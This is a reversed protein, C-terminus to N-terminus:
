TEDLSLVEAEMKADLYDGDEVYIMFEPADKDTGRTGCAAIKVVSMVRDIDDIYVHEVSPNMYKFSCLKEFPAVDSGETGEHIVYCFSLTSM